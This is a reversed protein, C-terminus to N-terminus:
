LFICFEGVAFGVTFGWFNKSATGFIGVISGILTTVALFITSYQTYKHKLLKEKKSEKMGKVDVLEKILLDIIFAGLLTGVVGCVLTLIGSLVNGFDESTDFLEKFITPIWYGFAGVTFIFATFGLTIFVFLMNTYLKRFQTFIGLIQSSDKGKAKDKKKEKRKALMKPDKQSFICILVVPIVLLGEIGFAWRWSSLIDVIFGGYLYGVAYGLAITSYFIAIWTSKNKESASDLIIPPALSIFSAEGVGSLARSIILQLYSYSTAALLSALGWIGMGVAILYFPHYIQSYHAFVPASVMFGFMFLSGLAGQQSEDLGLGPVTTPADITAPVSNTINVDTVVPLDTDPSNKLVTLVSALVGRDIFILLNITTFFALILVPSLKFLEKVM